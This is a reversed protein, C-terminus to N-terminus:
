RDISALRNSWRMESPQVRQRQHKYKRTNLKIENQMKRKPM